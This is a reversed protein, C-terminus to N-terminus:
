SAHRRKRFVDIYSTSRKCLHDITLDKTIFELDLIEDETPGDLCNMRIKGTRAFACFKIKKILIIIGTKVFFCIDSVQGAKLLITHRPYNM